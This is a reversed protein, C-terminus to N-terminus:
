YLFTCVFVFYIKWPFLYFLFDCLFINSLIKRQQLSNLNEPFYDLKLCKKRKNHLVVFSFSDHKYAALPSLVASGRAGTVSEFLYRVTVIFYHDRMHICFWFNQATEFNDYVIFITLVASGTSVDLSFHCSVPNIIKPPVSLIFPRNGHFFILDM